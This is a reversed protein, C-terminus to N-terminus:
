SQLGNGSGGKRPNESTRTAESSRRRLSIMWTLAAAKSKAAKNKAERFLAPLTGLIFGIFVSMAVPMSAEFMALLVGAFLLFGVACGFGVPFWLKISKKIDKFPNAILEMLPIYLGFAACLVGGSVGPLIAGAGIIAGQAMRLLAERFDQKNM